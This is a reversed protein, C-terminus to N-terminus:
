FARAKLITCSFDLEHHLPQYWPFQERLLELQTSLVVWQPVNHKNDNEHLTNIQKMNMIYTNLKKTFELKRKAQQGMTSIEGTGSLILINVSSGKKSIEYSCLIKNVQPISSRETYEYHLCPIKNRSYNYVTKVTLEVM